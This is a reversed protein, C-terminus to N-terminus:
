CYVYHLLGWDLKSCSTVGLMKLPLNEELISGDIKVDIGGTNNSWDFSVLQTERASFCCAM